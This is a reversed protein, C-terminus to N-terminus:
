PSFYHDYVDFVNFFGYSPLNSFHSDLKRQSHIIDRDFALLDVGDDTPAVDNIDNEIVTYVDTRSTRYHIRYGLGDILGITRRVMMDSREDFSLLFLQRL